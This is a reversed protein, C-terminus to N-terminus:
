IACLTKGILKGSCVIEVSDFNILRRKIDYQLMQMKFDEEIVIKNTDPRKILMEAQEKSIAANDTM